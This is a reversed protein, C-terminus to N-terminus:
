NGGKGEKGKESEREEAKGERKEETKFCRVKILVASVADVM